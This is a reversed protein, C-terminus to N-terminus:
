PASTCPGLASMHPRPGLVSFFLYELYLMLLISIYTEMEILDVVCSILDTFVFAKKDISFM